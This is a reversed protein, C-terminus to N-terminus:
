GRQALKSLIVEDSPNGFYCGETRTGLGFPGETKVAHATDGERTIHVDVKTKFLNDKRYQYHNGLNNWNTEM